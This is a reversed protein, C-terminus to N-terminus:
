DAKMIGWDMEVDFEKDYGFGDVGTFRIRAIVNDDNQYIYNVIQSTAPVPVNELVNLRVSDPCPDLVMHLAIRGVSPAITDSGQSNWYSVDMGTVIADVNNYVIFQIEDIQLQPAVGQQVVGALPTLYYIEVEPAPTLSECGVLVTVAVALLVLFNRM